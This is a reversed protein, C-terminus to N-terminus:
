EHCGLLEEIRVKCEEMLWKPTSTAGCIGVSRCDQFWETEIEELNVTTKEDLSLTEKIGENVSVEFKKDLKTPLYSICYPSAVASFLFISLLLILGIIKLVRIM